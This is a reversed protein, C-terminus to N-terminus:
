MNVIIDYGLKCGHQEALKKNTNTGTGLLIYVYGQKNFLNHIDRMNRFESLLNCKYKLPNNQPEWGPMGLILYVGMVYEYKIEVNNNNNGDYGTECNNNYEEEKKHEIYTPTTKFEKQIIVQLKNKYNTDNYLLDDWDIHKDMVSEIFIKCAQFGPGCVFINKFWDDEDKICLKNFDLFLAGVFSEFLCGLKKINTRTQKEEAHRSILLWKQLGIKMALKGIMENKVIAIKKETMFGEPALPFRCYLYYKVVLELVGDGIFELRENSKNQLPVCNLPLQAIHLYDNTENVIYSKHVFARKYLALNCNNIIPINYEDLLATLENLTIEKNIVNFPNYINVGNELVCFDAQNLKNM